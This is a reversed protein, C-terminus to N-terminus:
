DGLFTEWVACALNIEALRIGCM